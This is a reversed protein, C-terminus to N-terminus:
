SLPGLCRGRSTGWYLPQPLGREGAFWCRCRSLCALDDVGGCLGRCPKSSVIGTDMRLGSNNAPEPATFDGVLLLILHTVVNFCEHSLEGADALFLSAIKVPASYRLADCHAGNCLECICWEHFEEGYDRRHRFIVVPSLRNVSCACPLLTSSVISGASM